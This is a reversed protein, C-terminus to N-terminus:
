HKLITVGEHPLETVESDSDIITGVVEDVCHNKGTFMDTWLISRRLLTGNAPPTDAGAWDFSAVFTGPEREVLLRAVGRLSSEGSQFEVPYYDGIMPHMSSALAIDAKWALDHLKGDSLPYTEDYRKAFSKQWEISARVDPYREMTAYALRIVASHRLVPGIQHPSLFFGPDPLASFGKLSVITENRAQTRICAEKNGVWEGSIFVRRENTDESYRVDTSPDGYMSYTVAHRVSSSTAWGSIETERFDVARQGTVLMAHGLQSEKWFRTRLVYLLPVNGRLIEGM